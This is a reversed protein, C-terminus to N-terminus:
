LTRVEAEVRLISILLDILLLVHFHALKSSDQLMWDTAFNRALEPVKLRVAMVSSGGPEEKV